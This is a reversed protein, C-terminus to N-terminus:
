AAAKPVESPDILGHRRWGLTLLWTRPRGLYSRKSQAPNALGSTWGDFVPGSSYVDPMRARWSGPKRANQLVYILAIRCERPTELRRSHFRDPFM